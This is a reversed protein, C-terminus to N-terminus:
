KYLDNFMDTTIEYSRNPAGQVFLDLRDNKKHERMITGSIKQRFHYTGAAIVEISEYEYEIGNYKEALEKFEKWRDPGVIVIIKKYVRNIDKLQHIFSPKDEEAIKVKIDPFYKCFYKLKDDPSLPNKDKDHSRTLVVMHDYHFKNVLDRMRQILLAHGYTPPNMRGFIFVMTDTIM